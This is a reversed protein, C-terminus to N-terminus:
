RCGASNVKLGPGQQPRQTQGSGSNPEVSPSRANVLQVCFVSAKFTFWQKNEISCVNSCLSTKCNNEVLFERLSTSCRDATFYLGADTCGSQATEESPASRSTTNSGSQSSVVKFMGSYGKLTYELYKTLANKRKGKMQFM